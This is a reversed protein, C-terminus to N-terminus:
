DSKASRGECRALNNKITLNQDDLALAKRYCELAEKKKGITEYSMGLNNLIEASNPQITLAASFATNAESFKKLCMLAVGLANYSFYLEPDLANAKEFLEKARWFNERKLYTIGMLYYLLPSKQRELGRRATQEAEGYKKQEIQIMALDIYANISDKNIQICRNLHDIASKTNGLMWHNHAALYRLNYNPSGPKEDDSTVLEDAIMKLSSRYDKQEFLKLAEEYSASALTTTFLAATICAYVRPKM